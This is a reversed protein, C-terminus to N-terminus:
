PGDVAGPLVGLATGPVAPDVQDGDATSADTGAVATEPFCGAAVGVADAEGTETVVGDEAGRGTADVGAARALAGADVAGADVAGAGAPDVACVSPPPCPPWPPPPCPPL